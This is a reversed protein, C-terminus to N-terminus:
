EDPLGRQLLRHALLPPSKDDARETRSGQRRPVFFEVRAHQRGVRTGPTSLARVSRSPWSWALQANSIPRKRVRLGDRLSHCEHASPRAAARLTRPPWRPVRGVSPVRDHSELEAILDAM